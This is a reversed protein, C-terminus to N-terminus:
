RKSVYMIKDGEDDYITFDDETAKVTWEGLAVMHLAKTTRLLNTSSKSHKQHLVVM